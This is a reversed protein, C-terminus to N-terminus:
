RWTEKYKRYGKKARKKRDAHKLSARASQGRRVMAAAKADAKNLDVIM